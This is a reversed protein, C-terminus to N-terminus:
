TLDGEGFFRSRQKIWKGFAMFARDITQRDFRLHNEGQLSTFVDKFFATYARYDDWTEPKRNISKTDTMFVKMTRWVHQDIMPYEEPRLIHMVFIHLVLSRGFVRKREKIYKFFELSNIHGDRFEFCHRLFDKDNRYQEFDTNISSWTFRRNDIFVTETTEGTGEKVKGFKWHLLMSMFVFLDDENQCSRIQDLFHEYFLLPYKKRDYLKEWHMIFSCLICM